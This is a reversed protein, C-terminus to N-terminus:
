RHLPELVQDASRAPSRRPATRREMPPTDRREPELQAGPSRGEPVPAPGPIPDAVHPEAKPPPPPFANAVFGLVVRAQQSTVRTRATVVLEDARILGGALPARMGIFAVLPHDAFRARTREWYAQAHEAAEESEFHGTMRVDFAGDDLARVSAELREPVGRLNGRAFMRAGEVSLALIEDRELALLAAGPDDPARGRDKVKRRAIEHAVQLVRELDETRTIAFQQAAILALVRETTDLDHWPAVRVGGRQSWAAERGRAAALNAVAREAIEQGGEYQGAIVLNSRRLDPTAIYLRELDAVADLGSGELMLRFDPIATLLARVDPALESDRLRGMHLRLAIQAGEPAFSELVPRDGDVAARTAPSPPEQNAAIAAEPAGADVPEPRPEHKKPAPQPGAAAAREKPTDAPPPPASAQTAAPEARTVGFEVESPLTLEFDVSPLTGAWRLSLFLLAHVLLSGAAGLVAGFATRARRPVSSARM